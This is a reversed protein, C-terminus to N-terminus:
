EKHAGDIKEYPFPNIERYYKEIYFEAIEESTPLPYIHKFGCTRCDIVKIGQEEWFTDFQHEIQNSM